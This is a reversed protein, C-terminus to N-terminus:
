KAWRLWAAKSHELYAELAQYNRRASFWGAHGMKEAIDSASAPNAQSASPLWAIAPSGVLPVHQSVADAAVINFSESLSVQLCIDMQKVLARFGGHDLWPHLVLNGGIATTHLLAEISRLSSGGNQEIRSGNMHFWLAKKLKRAYLVAAFAQELQNKLPRIAGFCGVHLITASRGEASAGVVQSAPPDLPYWNPLYVSAGIALFDSVTQASNFAVEIGQKRYEALWGIAMGELALFPIESHVRVTWQIKPYLKQLEALKAPTAWVAEIVVRTPSNQFVLRDISNGDIAEVLKAPYGLANLLDVVFTASNRLGNSLLGDGGGYAYFKKMIFLTLGM